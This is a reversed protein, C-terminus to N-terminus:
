SQAITIRDIYITKTPAQSSPDAPDAGPDAFSEIRRAVDLGRTVRGFRTYANPLSSADGTVIFFQSGNTDPGANAMAVAGTPYGDDPLEDEFLYGPGGRGNGEPDGGQIVFGAVARHFTLGDYFGERALFVFNNVAVPAVRADLAVLIDGCSTELTATYRAAPDITRRPPAAYTRRSQPQAPERGDCVSGAPSTVPLPASRDAGEDGGSGGGCGALLALCAAALAPAAVPRGPVPV